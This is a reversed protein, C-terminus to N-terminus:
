DTLLACNKKSFSFAFYNFLDKIDFFSLLYLFKNIIIKDLKNIIEKIKENSYLSQYKHDEFM